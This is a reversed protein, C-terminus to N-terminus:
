KDDAVQKLWEQGNDPMYVVVNCLFMFHPLLMLPNFYMSKKINSKGHMM